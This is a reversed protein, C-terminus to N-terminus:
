RLLMRISHFLLVIGTIIFLTPIIVSAWKTVKKKILKYLKDFLVQKKRYIFYLMMLPSSYIFNYLLLISIVQLFTLKYNLLVALFAFYPLATALETITALVGLVILAIPSVSKIKEAIIQQDKMEQNDENQLQGKYIACKIRQDLVVYCALILMMIGAILELILLNQQHTLLVTTFLTSVIAVLGYYVMLGGTFNTVGTALIFFWIHKPNKVLSQLVFQQTIAVPNLSDAASTIITTLILVLSM